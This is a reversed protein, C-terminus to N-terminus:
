MQKDVITSGNMKQIATNASEETEFQVFGYGKSKGDESMVVKSSLINGFKKFMDELGSNNISEALNKVFVNGISSKRADPDRRSWMVRIAKGNLTSHNKLEIARIADQPSLFNVYGYCLSRGTSSDRCIRVSALSKFDSFAEHLQGDSVDPHLDGVYLSAPTAAVSPPVAM